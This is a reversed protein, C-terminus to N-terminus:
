VPELRWEERGLFSTREQRRDRGDGDFARGVPLGAVEARRHVVAAGDHDKAEVIEHGQETIRDGVPLRDAEPQVARRSVHLRVRQAHPAVAPVEGPEVGISTGDPAKPEIADIRAFRGDGRDAREVAYTM